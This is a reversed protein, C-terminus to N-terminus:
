EGKTCGGPCYVPLDPDFDKDYPVPMAVAPSAAEPSDAGILALMSLTAAMVAIAALAGIRRVDLDADSLGNNSANVM